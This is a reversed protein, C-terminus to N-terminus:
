TIHLLKKVNASCDISRTFPFNRSLQKSIIWKEKRRFNIEFEILKQRWAYYVLPSWFYQQSPSLQVAVMKHVSYIQCYFPGCFTEQSGIEVTQINRNSLEITLNMQTVFLLFLFKSGFLRLQKFLFSIHQIVCSFVSVCLLHNRYTLSSHCLTFVFLITPTLCHVSICYSLLLNIKPVIQGLFHNVCQIIIVLTAGVSVVIKFSNIQFYSLESNPIKSKNWHKKKKTQWSYCRNPM